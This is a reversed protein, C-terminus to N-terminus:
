LTRYLGDAVYDVAEDYNNRLEQQLHTNNPDDAQIAHDVVDKPVKSDCLVAHLALYLELVYRLRRLHCHQLPWLVNPSGELVVKDNPVRAVTGTVITYGEEGTICVKKGVFPHSYQKPFMMRHYQEHTVEGRMLKEHLKKNM